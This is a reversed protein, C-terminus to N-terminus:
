QAEIRIFFDLGIIKARSPAKGNIVFDWDTEKNDFFAKANLVKLQCFYIYLSSDWLDVSKYCVVQSISLKASGAANLFGRRNRRETQVLSRNESGAFIFQLIKLM